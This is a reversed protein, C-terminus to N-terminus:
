HLKDKCTWVTQCSMECDAFEITQACCNESSRVKRGKWCLVGVCGDQSAWKLHVRYSEREPEFVDHLLWIDLSPTVLGLDNL